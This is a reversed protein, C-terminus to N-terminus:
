ALFVYCMWHYKLFRFCLKGWKSQLIWQIGYPAWRPIRWYWINFQLDLYRCDKRKKFSWRIVKQIQSGWTPCWFQETNKLSWVHTIKQCYKIFFFSHYGLLKNSFFLCWVIVDLPVCVIIILLIQSIWSFFM